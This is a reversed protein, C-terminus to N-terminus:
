GLGIGDTTGVGLGLLMGVVKAGVGTVGCGVRIGEGDGLGIGDEM